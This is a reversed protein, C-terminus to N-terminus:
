ELWYVCAGLKRSPNRHFKFYMHAEFYFNKSILIKLFESKVVQSFFKTKLNYGRTFKFLYIM